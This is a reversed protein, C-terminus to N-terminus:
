WREMDEKGGCLHMEVEPGADEAIGPGWSWGTGSRVWNTGHRMSAIEEMTM